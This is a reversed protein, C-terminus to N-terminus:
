PCPPDLSAIWTEILQLGEEHVLTRGLLPMRVDVATSAVRHAMMSRDPRGAAVIHSVGPAIQDHPAVCLGLNVPDATEHWAFRMPRYDCYSGQAHCHGCNIDVYARVRDGLSVNADKWDPLVEAVPPHAPDLYGQQVWRQLQGQSGEPYAYSRDMNRPKPGIPMPENDTRHCARCEPGAPIRYDVQRQTGQDDTWAIATFSGDLDLFAEDQASNWVYNAFHWEDEWRYMMRTEVIRRQMSPQVQDYYFTKLLVAGNPFDLVRDEGNWNAHTGAPMWVHRLKKAYDSFLPNIVDYPLVDPRAQLDKLAGTFYGYASLTPLPGQAPDFGYAPPPGPTAPPDVPDRRCSVFALVVGAVMLLARVKPSFSNPM